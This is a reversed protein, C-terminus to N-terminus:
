ALKGLRKAQLMLLNKVLDAQTLDTARANLSEFFTFAGDADPVRVTLFQLRASLAAFLEKVDENDDTVPPGGLRKELEQDFFRFAGWIRKAAVPRTLGQAKVPGGGLDTIQELVQQAPSSNLRIRPSNEAKTISSLTTLRGLAERAARLHSNGADIRRYLCAALVTLTVLRQQGDIIFVSEGLSPPAPLPEDTYTTSLVVLGMFHEEAAERVRTLDAWLDNWRDKEWTYERQFFQPVVFLRKGVLGEFNPTEPMLNM